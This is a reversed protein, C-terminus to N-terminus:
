ETAETTGATETIIATETVVAAETTGATAEATSVISETTTPTTDKASAKVSNVLIVTLLSMVVWFLGLWKTARALKADLTKSGGKAMFSDSSGALASTLGASKGSQFIIVLVLLVASLLDLVLAVTKLTEM